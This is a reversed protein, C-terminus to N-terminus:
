HWFILNLVLMLGNVECDLFFKSSLNRELSLQYIEPHSQTQEEIEVSILCLSLLHSETRKLMIWFLVKNM